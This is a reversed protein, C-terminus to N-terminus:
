DHSWLAAVRAALSTLGAAPRSMAEEVSGVHDVISWAEDVGAASSERKGVDVRGALVLCPRAKAAARYAVGSVVKGRLSQWDFSGEGTIVLDSEAVRDDFRVAALCTDIGSVRQGGLLALGYGLGGGAGAGPFDSGRTDLLWDALRRELRDVTDSDAGKQPGFVPAAGLPGLLPNDVDTAIQLQLEKPIVGGLAQFREVMGRGGDTTGTGGVGVVIRDVDASVAALLLDAVGATDPREADHWGAPLLHLGAAQAVEVYATGDAILVAGLAEDGLPGRTPVPLVEGGLSQALVEVFGPGGDALPVTVVEDAPASQRWGEAIAHAAQPASLTGAFKDPAVLVRM